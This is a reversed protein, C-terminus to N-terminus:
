GDRRKTRPVGLAILDEMVAAPDHRLEYASCSVVFRDTTTLKRNRARDAAAQLFDDHFAGDVELVLTRGDALPWECDTYRRRGARDFRPQQAIPLAVRFRRCARRVDVEALSQAGAGVDDLLARLGKAGPLPSLRDLWASLDAVGTLRQQVVAAVAGHATRRNAEYGAFLLVAPAVRCVPLRGQARMEDVSRRTRFFEVGPVEDFSLTNAVLVTITPRDWSRLGHVRAAALGCILSDPGAHLIARWLQQEWSLPGTTVSFVSSTRRVWRRARLHSRLTARTVGLQNLQRQSLLGHQVQALRRWDETM